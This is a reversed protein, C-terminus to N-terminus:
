NTSIHLCLCFFITCIDQTYNWSYKDTVINVHGYQSLSIMNKMIDTRNSMHLMFICLCQDGACRCMAKASQMDLINSMFAGYTASSYGIMTLILLIFFRDLSVNPLCPQSWSICRQLYVHGPSWTYIQLSQDYEETNVNAVHSVTKLCVHDASARILWYM